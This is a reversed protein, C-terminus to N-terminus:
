IDEASMSYPNGTGKGAYTHFLNILAFLYGIGFVILVGTFLVRQSYPLESFPHFPRHLPLDSMASGNTPPPPRQGTERLRTEHTGQEAVERPSTGRSQSSSSPGRTSLRM